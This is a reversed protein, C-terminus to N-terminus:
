LYWTKTLDEDLWLSFDSLGMRENVIVKMFAPGKSTETPISYTGPQINNTNGFKNLLFDRAQNVERLM